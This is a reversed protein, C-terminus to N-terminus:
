QPPKSPNEADMGVRSNDIMEQLCGTSGGPGVTTCSGIGTEGVEQLNRARAAWSRSDPDNDGPVSVEPPIRYRETEPRRACVYIDSGQSVPCPDNGYVIIQRITQQQAPLPTPIVNLVATALLASAYPISVKM